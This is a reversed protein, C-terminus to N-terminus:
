QIMESALQQKIDPKIDEGFESLFAQLEEKFDVGNAAASREIKRKLRLLEADMENAQEKQYLGLLKAFEAICNDTSAIADLAFKRLDMRKTHVIEVELNLEGEIKNLLHGLTAKKKKPRFKDKGVPIMDTHDLYIVDVESPRYDLNIEPGLEDDLMIWKEAAERLKEAFALNRRFREFVDIANMAHLSDKFAATDFNLCNQAHRTVSDDSLGHRRAIGRFSKGDGIEGNIKERQEHSCTLCPRGTPKKPKDPMVFVSTLRQRFFYSLYADFDFM